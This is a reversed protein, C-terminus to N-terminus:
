QESKGINTRKKLPNKKRKGQPADTERITDGCVEGKNKAKKGTMVSM